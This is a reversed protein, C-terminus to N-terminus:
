PSCRPLHVYAIRERRKRGRWVCALMALLRWLVREGGGGNEPFPHFIGVVLRADKRRRRVNRYRYAHRYFLFVIAAGFLAVAAAAAVVTGM